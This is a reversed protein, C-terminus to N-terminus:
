SAPADMLAFGTLELLGYSVWAQVTFYQKRGEIFYHCRQPGLSKVAGILKYHAGSRYPMYRYRGAASPLQDDEFYGVPGDEFFFTGAEHEPKMTKRRTYGSPPWPVIAPSRRNHRLGSSLNM